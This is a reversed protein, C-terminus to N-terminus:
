DAYQETIVTLVKTATGRAWIEDGHTLVLMANAPIPLNCGTKSTGYFWATDCVLVARSRRLDRGIVHEAVTDLVQIAAPGAKSPLHQVRVPGEIVVPVAGYTFVERQQLEGLDPAPPDELPISPVDSM